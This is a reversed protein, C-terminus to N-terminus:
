LSVFQETQHMIEVLFYERAIDFKRFYCIYSYFKIDHNCIQRLQKLYVVSGTFRFLYLHKCINREKLHSTCKCYIM